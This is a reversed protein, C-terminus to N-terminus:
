QAGVILKYEKQLAHQKQFRAQALQILKDFLAPQSLGTVAWNKPYMSINTFGPITNLENVYIKEDATVFFDVRAMGECYTAKVAKIALQRIRAILDESLDAPTQVTAGKEDMYKAEYSYFEAHVIIEGPLSAVPKENGLVSCEIERGVIATELLVRTDYEFAQHLAPLFESETKVKYVGVSSGLSNGKVFFPSGLTKVVSDYTISQSNDKTALMWDVVPVGAQHLLIKTVDKHMAIASGLVDAGIYPVNLTQLLGQMVGDEGNAGHLIPVICDIMPLSFAHNLLQFPQKEGPIIAIQVANKLVNTATIDQNLFFEIDEFYFWRGDHLIYAVFVTYKDADLQRVVNRASLISIEHETSQGGCLVLVSQKNSM